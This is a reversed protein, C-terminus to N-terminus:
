ERTWHFVRTVSKRNMKLLDVKFHVTISYATPYCYWYNNYTYFILFLTPIHPASQNALIKLLQLFNCMSPKEMCMSPKDLTVQMKQLPFGRLPENFVVMKAIITRMFIMM